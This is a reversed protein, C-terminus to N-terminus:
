DPWEVVTYRSRIRRMLVFCWISILWRVIMNVRRLIRIARNYFAAPYDNKLWIAEDYDSIARNYEGRMRYIIGRNNYHDPADPKLRIAENLDQLARDNEGKYRYAVGRNNYAAALETPTNQNGQIVATCGQIIVDPAPGERGTCQNWEKSSQASAPEALMAVLSFSAAALASFIRRTIATVM